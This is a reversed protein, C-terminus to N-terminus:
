RAIITVYYLFSRSNSTGASTQLVVPVAKQISSSNAALQLRTYLSNLLNVCGPVGIVGALWKAPTVAALCGFSSVLIMTNTGTGFDSPARLVVQTDAWSVVTAISSGFKVYSGTAIGGFGSGYLTVNQDPAGSVPSLTTLSPTQFRFTVPQTKGGVADVYLSVSGSGPPVVVQIQDNSAVTATRYNASGFWVNPRLYAGSPFLNTGAITIMAGPAASATVYTLTPKPFTLTPLTLGGIAIPAATSAPKVDQLNTKSEGQATSGPIATTTRVSPSTPSTSQGCGAALMGSLVFILVFLISRVSKMCAEKAMRDASATRM